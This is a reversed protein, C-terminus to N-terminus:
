VSASGRGPPQKVLADLSTKVTGMNPTKLWVAGDPLIEKIEGRVNGQLSQVRDGVALPEGGTGLLLTLAREETPTITGAIYHGAFSKLSVLQVAPLKIQGNILHGIAAVFTNGNFNLFPALKHCKRALQLADNVSASPPRQEWVERATAYGESNRGHTARGTECLGINIAEIKEWTASTLDINM